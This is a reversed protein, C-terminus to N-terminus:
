YRTTKEFINTSNNLNNKYEYLFVAYGINLDSSDPNKLLSNDYIKDIYNLFYLKFTTDKLIDKDLNNQLLLMKCNDLQCDPGALKCNIQHNNIFARLKLDFNMFEFNTNNYVTLINTIYIQLDFPNLTDIDWSLINNYSPEEICFWFIIFPVGAVCVYFAEEVQIIKQFFLAINAWLYIAAFVNM